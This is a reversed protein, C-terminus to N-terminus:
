PGPHRLSTHVDAVMDGRVQVGSSMPWWTVISRPAQYTSEAESPRPKKVEARQNRGALCYAGGAILLTMVLDAVVLAAIPGPGPLCSSCDREAAVLGLLLLLGLPVRPTAPPTM